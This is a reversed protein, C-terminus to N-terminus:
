PINKCKDKHNIHYNNLSPKKQTYYKEPLKVILSHFGFKNQTCLINNNNNKIKKIQAM